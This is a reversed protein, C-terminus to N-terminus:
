QDIWTYIHVVRDKKGIRGRSSEGLSETLIHRSNIKLELM